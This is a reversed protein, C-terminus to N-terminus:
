KGLLPKRQLTRTSTLLSKLILGSPPGAVSRWCCTRDSEQLRNGNSENLQDMWSIWGDSGASENLQDIYSIRGDAENIQNTWSIRGASEHMQNTWRIRGESEDLKPLSASDSDSDFELWSDICLRRLISSSDSASDFLSWIWFRILIPDPDICFRIPIRNLIPDSHVRFWLLIPDLIPDSNIRGASENLQEM